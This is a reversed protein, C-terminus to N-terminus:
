KSREHPKEEDNYCKNHLEILKKQIKDPDLMGLLSEMSKAGGAKFCIYGHVKEPEAMPDIMACRDALRRGETAIFHRLAEWGAPNAQTLNYLKEYMAAVRRTKFTKIDITDETLQSLKDLVDLHEAKLPGTTLAM